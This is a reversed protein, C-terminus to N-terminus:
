FFRNIGEVIIKVATQRKEQQLLNNRTNGQVFVQSCCLLRSGV